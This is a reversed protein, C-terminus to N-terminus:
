RPHSERGSFTHPVCASTSSRHYWPSKPLDNWQASRVCTCYPQM